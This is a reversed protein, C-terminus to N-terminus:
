LGQAALIHIALQLDGPQTIKINDSSGKVLAAYLGQNEMASSEDTINLEVAAKTLANLLAELRFIQPTQAQWLSERNVSGSIHEGDDSCKLSDSVPSALIAGVPHNLAARILRDLDAARLCPRAADHVAVWQDQKGYNKLRQLCSTVTDSRHQGGQARLIPKDTNLTLSKWRKDQDNIGVVVGEVLPHELLRWLSTELVTKSGLSLYQKPVDLSMRSGSGAAPLIGWIM